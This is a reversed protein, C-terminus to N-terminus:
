EGALLSKYALEAAQAEEKAAKIASELTALQEATTAKDEAALNYADEADVVAQRAADVAEKAKKLAEEKSIEKGTDYDTDFVKGTETYKDYTDGEKTALDEYVNRIPSISPGEKDSLIEAFLETFEEGSYSYEEIEVPQLKKNRAGEDRYIGLSVNARQTVYDININIIRAYAETYTDGFKSNFEIKIAM